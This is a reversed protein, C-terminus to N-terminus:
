KGKPPGLVDDTQNLGWEKELRHFIAKLENFTRTIFRALPPLEEPGLLLLALLFLVLIEM